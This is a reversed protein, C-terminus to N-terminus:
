QGFANEIVHSRGVSDVLAVDVRCDTMLGNPCSALYEEATGIIRHQQSRSIRAAAASFSRSKKVEVFVLTDGCEVILDIEGGTGRWRTHAVRCGRRIYDRAVSKEAADGACYAVKGTMAKNM